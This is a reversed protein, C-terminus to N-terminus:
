QYDLLINEIKELPVDSLLLVTEVKGDAGICYDSIIHSEKLRPIVAVPVLGLDIEHNLLQKAIMSPHQLEIQLNNILPSHKLGFLFPKTNLYSVAGVRLKETLM